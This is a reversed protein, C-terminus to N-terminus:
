AVLAALQEQGHVGLGPRGPHHVGVFIWNPQFEEGADGAPGGGPLEHPDRVLAARPHQGDTFAREGSGLQVQAGHEVDGVVVHQNGRRRALLRGVRLGTLHVDVPHVFEAHLADGLLGADVRRYAGPVHGDQDRRREVPRAGPHLDQPVPFRRRGDGRM